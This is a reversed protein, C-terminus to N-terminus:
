APPEGLLAVADARIEALLRSRNERTMEYIRVDPRQKIGDIFRDGRYAATAICVPPADLVKEVTRRFVWSLIEMPGIEDIVIVRVDPDSLPIGGVFQELALTDVRYKGVHYRSELDTHALLGREGSLSVLEFGKRMGGERIEETYFGIPRWPRLEGALRRILTTKGIGPRGTVLLNKRRM